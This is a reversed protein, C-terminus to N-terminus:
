PQKSSNTLGCVQVERRLTRRNVFPIGVRRELIKIKPGSCSNSEIVVEKLAEAFLPKSHHLPSGGFGSLGNDRAVSLTRLDRIIPCSVLCETKAM